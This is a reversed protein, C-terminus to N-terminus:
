ANDEEEETDTDPEPPALLKQLAEPMDDPGDQSTWGRQYAEMVREAPLEAADIMRTPMVFRGAGQMRSQAAPSSPPAGYGVLRRDGRPYIEGTLQCVYCQVKM